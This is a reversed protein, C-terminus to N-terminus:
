HHSKAPYHKTIKETTLFTLKNSNNARKNIIGVHSVCYCIGVLQVATITKLNEFTKSVFSKIHNKNIRGVKNRIYTGAALVTFQYGDIFTSPVFVAAYLRIEFKVFFPQFFAFAKEFRVACNPHGACIM